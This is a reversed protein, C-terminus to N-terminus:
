DAIMSCIRRSLGFGGYLNRVDDWGHHMLIQQAVYSRYGSACQVVIPRDRPVDDTRERLASLPMVRSGAVQGMTSAEVSNDAPLCARASAAAVRAMSSM